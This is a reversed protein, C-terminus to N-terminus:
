KRLVRQTWEAEPQDPVAVTRLKTVNAGSLTDACNDLAVGILQSIRYAFKIDETVGQANVQVHIPMDASGEEIWLQYLVTM